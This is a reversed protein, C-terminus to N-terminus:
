DWSKYYLVLGFLGISHLFGFGIGMMFCGLLCMQTNRDHRILFWWDKLIHKLSM